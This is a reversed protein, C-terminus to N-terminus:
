LRLGRESNEPNDRTDNKDRMAVLFEEHHPNGSDGSEEILQPNRQGSDHRDENRRELKDAAKSEQDTKETTKDCDGEREVKCSRDEERMGPVPKEYGPADLEDHYEHHGRYRNCDRSGSPKRHVICEGAFHIPSLATSLWISLAPIAGGPNLSGSSVRM